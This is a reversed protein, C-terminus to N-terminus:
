LGISQDIIINKFGGIINACDILRKVVSIDCYDTLISILILSGLAAYRNVPVSQWRLQSSLRQIMDQTSNNSDYVYNPPGVNNIYIPAEYMRRGLETAFVRNRCLDDIYNNLSDYDSDSM